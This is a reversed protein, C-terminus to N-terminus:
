PSSFSGAPKGGKRPDSVAILQDEDSDHEVEVCILVLFSLFGLTYYRVYQAM